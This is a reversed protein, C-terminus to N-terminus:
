SQRIMRFCVPSGPAALDEKEVRIKGEEGFYSVSAEMLGLALDGLHRDSTYVIELYDPRHERVEFRPLEADPYLKRVEVHIVSEISAVFDIASSQGALFAPYLKTFQGFLFKGFAQLLDPVAMGTRESLKVVMAVIEEHPYTGVATYVGGSPLNCEEIIQEAFDVSWTSEMMEIFKTFVIGKM